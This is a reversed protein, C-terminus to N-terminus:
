GAYIFLYNHAPIVTDAIVGYGTVDDMYQVHYSVSKNIYLKEIHRITHNMIAQYSLNPMLITNIHTYVPLRSTPKLACTATSLCVKHSCVTHRLSYVMRYLAKSCCTLSLESVADLYETVARISNLSSLICYISSM